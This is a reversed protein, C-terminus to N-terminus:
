TSAMKEKLVKWGDGWEALSFMEKWSDQSRYSGLLEAGIAQAMLCGENARGHLLKANQERKVGREGKAVAHIKARLTEGSGVVPISGVIRRGYKKLKQEITYGLIQGCTPSEDRDCGCAYQKQVDKRDRIELLRKIHLDTKYMGPGEFIVGGISFTFHNVAYALGGKVLMKTYHAVVYKKWRERDAEWADHAEEPDVLVLYEEKPM